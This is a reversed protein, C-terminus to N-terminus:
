TRRCPTTPAASRGRGTGTAGRAVAAAAPTPARPRRCARRRRAAARPRGSREDVREHQQREAEVEGGLALPQAREDDAGSAPRGRPRHTSGPPASGAIALEEDVEGPLGASVSRASVIATASARRRRRPLLQVAPRLERARDALRRGERRAAADHLRRQPRRHVGQPARQSVHRARRRDDRGLGRGRRPHRRRRRLGPGSAATSCARPSPRTGPRPDDRTLLRADSEGRRGSVAHRRHRWPWDELSGGEGVADAHESRRHGLGLGDGAEDHERCPARYSVASIPPM